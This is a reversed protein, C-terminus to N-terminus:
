SIRRDQLPTSGIPRASSRRGCAADAAHQAATLAAEVQNLVAETNSDPGVWVPEGWRVAIRAFPLPILFRDWTPRESALNASASAPLIPLGTMRAIEVVGRGARMHPGRPGDPTIFLSHDARALRILERLAKSGGRTSSGTASAIGFLSAIKSIFQGDRHASILAILPREGKHIFSLMSLRGHWLALVYPGNSPPPPRDIRATSRVLLAYGAVIGSLVWQVGPTQLLRKFVRPTAM